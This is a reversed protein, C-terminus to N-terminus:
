YFTWVLTNSNAACGAYAADPTLPPTTVVSGTGAKVSYLGRGQDQVAMKVCVEKPVANFTIAFGSDATGTNASAVTVTGFSSRIAGAASVMRKPLANSDTLVTANLGDYSAQGSYLSRVAQQVSALEGLGNTVQRASNSQGYYYMAAGIVFAFLGLVMAGEILTLARKSTRKLRARLGKAGIDDGANMVAQM